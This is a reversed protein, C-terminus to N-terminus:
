AIYIDGTGAAATKKQSFQIKKKHKLLTSISFPM